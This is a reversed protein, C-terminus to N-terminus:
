CDRYGTKERLQKAIATYTCTTTQVTGKYLRATDGTNNWVMSKTMGWYLDTATNRGAGTHVTVTKGPPLKFASPFTFVHYNKNDKIRYGALSQTRTSVNKVQVYERNLKLNSIPLDAGPQDAFFRGFKLPYAAAGAHPAAVTTALAVSALCVALRAPRPMVSWPHALTVPAADRYGM